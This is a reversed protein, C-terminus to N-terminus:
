FLTVIIGYRPTNFNHKVLFIKYIRGGFHASALACLPPFMLPPSRKGFVSSRTAIGVSEEM